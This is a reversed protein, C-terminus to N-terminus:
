AIIHKTIQESLETPLASGQLPIPGWNSGPDSCLDMRIASLDSKEGQLMLSKELEFRKLQGMASIEADKVTKWFSHLSMLLKGQKLVQNLGLASLIEKRSQLDGNIFADQSHRMFHFVNETLQNFNKATIETEKVKQSVKQLELDFEEKKLDYQVKTITGDLLFQLANDLKRQIDLKNKLHSEYIIQSNGTEKAHIEKLVEM